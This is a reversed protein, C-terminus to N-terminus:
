DPLENTWESNDLKEEIEWQKLIKKSRNRHYIFGLVLIIPLIVYVYKPSRFLFVWSYNNKLYAEFKIEFDILQNKSSYELSQQFDIKERM